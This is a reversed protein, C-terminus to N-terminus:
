LFQPLGLAFLVDTSTICQSCSCNAAEKKNLDSTAYCYITLYIIFINFIIINAYRLAGSNHESRLKSVEDKYVLSNMGLLIHTHKKEFFFVTRNESATETFYTECPPTPSAMTSSRISGDKTTTTSLHLLLLCIPRMITTTTTTTTTMTMTPTRTASWHPPCVLVLEQM